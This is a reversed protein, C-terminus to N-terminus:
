EGSELYRGPGLSQFGGVVKTAPDIQYRSDWPHSPGYQVKLGKPVVVEATKPLVVARSRTQNVQPTLTAFNGPKPAPKRRSVIASGCWHEGHHRHTFFRQAPQGSTPRTFRHLTGARLMQEILEKAEDYRKYDVLGRVLEQKSAGGPGDARALIRAALTMGAGTSFLGLWCVGAPAVDRGELLDVGPLGAGFRPSQHPHPDNGATKRHLRIAAPSVFDSLGSM